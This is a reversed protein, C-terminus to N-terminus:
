RRAGRCLYAAPLSSRRALRFTGGSAPWIAGVPLSPTRGASECSERGAVAPTGRTACQEPPPRTSYRHRKLLHLYQPFAATQLKTGGEREALLGKNM